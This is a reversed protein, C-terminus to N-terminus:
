LGNSFMVWPRGSLILHTKLFVGLDREVAGGISFLLIPSLAANASSLVRHM